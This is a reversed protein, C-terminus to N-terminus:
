QYKYEHKNRKITLKKGLDGYLQDLQGGVLDLDFYKRIKDFAALAMKQRTGPHGIMLDLKVALEDLRGPHVLMLDKTEMFVDTIGGVPTSIVPVHHAMADIVAMPFGEAYSPLCFVSARNFLEEKERGSVWGPLVVRDRVGLKLSLADAEALEGNGALVLKWTPHKDAIMSFARILDSYGKRENLTGAFLIYEERPRSVDERVLAPNYIVEIPLHEGCTM